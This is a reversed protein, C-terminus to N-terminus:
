INLSEKLRALEDDVSANAGSYKDALDSAEDKAANLDAHAMAQDLAKNAKAEMREFADVSSAARKGGDQMKNIREQAKAAAATAKINDKRIELASIDNVLKDHMQHMKDANAKALDAAKQLGVLQEDYQQKKVLLARADADNGAKVANTAATTYREIQAKCDAVRREAEKADAMVGATEQKVKALDERLDRLTQDVMKAPDECKDLMANINSKMVDSFRSIIGM